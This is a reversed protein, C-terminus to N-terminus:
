DKQYKGITKFWKGNFKLWVGKTIVRVMVTRCVECRVVPSEVMKHLIHQTHECEPCRYTYAAM